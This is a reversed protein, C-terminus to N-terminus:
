NHDGITHYVRDWEMSCRHNRYNRGDVRNDEIDDNNNNSGCKIRKTRDM